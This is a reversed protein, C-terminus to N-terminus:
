KKDQPLESKSKLRRPILGPLWGEPDMRVYPFNEQGTEMVHLFVKFIFAPRCSISMQVM